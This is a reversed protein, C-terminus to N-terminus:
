YQYKPLYNTGDGIYKMVEPSHDGTSEFTPDMLKWDKGDFYIVDNIWGTEESYVSIWAHYADGTYGVVLKTPIGQSRLMAAMLAAYDFCIGKGSKLIADIDPLYGSQVTKSLNYDYKINDVVFNYIADIKAMLGTSRPRAALEAAKRVADSDQNYNVYQSPRLYPAFPDSMIVSIETKHSLAYKTGEIQEWVDVAYTGNGDTLPFIEFAGPALDYKYQLESPGTILVKHKRTNNILYKVMIYGDEANSYDIVAKDNESVRVGSALPIPFDPITVPATEVAALSELEAPSNPVAGEPIATRSCGSFLAVVFLLLIAGTARRCKKM